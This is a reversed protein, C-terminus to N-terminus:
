EEVQGAGFVAREHDDGVVFAQGVASVAEHAQAVTQQGVVSGRGHRKVVGGRKGAEHAFEAAERAKSGATGLAASEPKKAVLLGFGGLEGLGEHISGGGNAGAQPAPKEGGGSQTFKAVERGALAAFEADDLVGGIDKGELAAPDKLAKVVRQAAAEGGEVVDTGVLEADGGKQLAEPVLVGGFEDKGQAGIDFALGGGLVQEFDEVGEANGECTDGVSEGGAAAEFVGVLEGKLAGEGAAAGELNRGAAGVASISVIKLRQFKGM